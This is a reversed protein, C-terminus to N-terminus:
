KQEDKFEFKEKIMHSALEFFLASNELEEILKKRLLYVQEVGRKLIDFIKYVEISKNKDDIVKILDKDNLWTNNNLIFFLKLGDEESKELNIEKVEKDILDKLLENIEVIYVDDKDFVIKDKIEILNNMENLKEMIKKRVEM